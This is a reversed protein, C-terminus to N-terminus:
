ALSAIFGLISMASNILYTIITKAGRLHELYAYVQGLTWFWPIVHCPIVHCPIVHCPIMHSGQEDILTHNIQSIVGDVNKEGVAM